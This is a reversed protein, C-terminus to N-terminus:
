EAAVEVVEALTSTMDAALLFRRRQADSGLAGREVYRVEGEHTEFRGKLGEQRLQMLRERLEPVLAARLFEAQNTEVYWAADFREDGVKIEKYGFLGRVTNAFGEPSLRFELAGRVRPRVALAIWHQRNKGSGTTFHVVRTAKGEREGSIEPRRPFIGLVPAQERLTLGLEVALRRLNEGSKRGARVVVVITGIVFLGWFAFVLLEFPFPPM